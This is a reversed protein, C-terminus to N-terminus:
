RRRNRILYCLIIKIILSIITFGFIIVRFLTSYDMNQERNLFLIWFTDFVIVVLLSYFYYRITDFRGNINAINYAMLIGFIYLILNFVDFKGLIFCCLSILIGLIILQSSKKGILSHKPFYQNFNDPLYGETSKIENRLLNSNISNGAEEQIIDLKEANNKGRNLEDQAESIRLKNPSESYSFKSNRQSSYLSIRTNGLFENVNESTNLIKKDQIEKIKNYYILGYPEDIKESLNELQFINQTLKDVQQSIKNILDSYKRKNNYTFICSISVKALNEEGTIDYEVDKRSQDLYDGLNIIFYGHGENILTGADTLTCKVYNKDDLVQFTFVEDFKPNLGYKSQTEKEDIIEGSKKYLSLILKSKRTKQLNKIEKIRITLENQKSIGSPLFEENEYERLKDQYKELKRILDNKLRILNEKQLKLKEELLIYIYVFENLSIKLNKDRDSLEFLSQIDERKVSPNKKKFFNYLENLSLYSDKNVDILDFEQKLQVFKSEITKQFDRSMNLEIETGAKLLNEKNIDNTSTLENILDSVMRQIEPSPNM